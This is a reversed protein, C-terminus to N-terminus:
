ETFLGAQQNTLLSRYSQEGTKAKQLGIRFAHKKNESGTCWELNEVKNDTKIGNIHNVQPKNEPNPIFALAVLRHTKQRINLKKLRATQLYGKNNEQKLVVEKLIEKSGDLKNVFFIRKVRGLNSVFYEESDMIKKWIEGNILNKNTKIPSSTKHYSKRNQNSCCAKCVKRRKGAKSFYFDLRTKDTQCKRCYFDSIINNKKLSM